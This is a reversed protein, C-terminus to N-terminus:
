GAAPPPWARAVLQATVEDATGRLLEEPVADVVARQVVYDHAASPFARRRAVVVEPQPAPDLFSWVAFAVDLDPASPARGFLGARRAAVLACGVLVDEVSEGEVLRLREEYRRALRLAYGQDPGPQGKSRGGPRAPWALEAPRNATWGSPVELQRAPRVQDADAIPVFSPQTM